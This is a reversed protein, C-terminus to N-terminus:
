CLNRTRSYTGIARTRENSTPTPAANRETEPTFLAYATVNDDFISPNEKLCATVFADLTHAVSTGKGVAAVPWAFFAEFDSIEPVFLGDSAVVLTDGPRREASSEQPEGYPSPGLSALLLSPNDPAHQPHLLTEWTGNARRIEAGGDGIHCLAYEKATALLVILTCRFDNAGFHHTGVEAVLRRGAAQAHRVMEPLSSSIKAAQHLLGIAAGFVAVFSADRGAYHGGCGDAIIAAEIRGLHPHTFDFAIGYDQNEPNHGAVSILGACSSATPEVKPFSRSLSRTLSEPPMWSPRVMGLASYFGMQDYNITAANSDDARPPAERRRIGAVALVFGTAAPLGMGDTALGAEDSDPGSATEEPAAMAEAKTAEASREPATAAGPISETMTAEEQHFAAGDDALPEARAIGLSAALFLGALLLVIWCRRSSEGVSTEIRRWEERHDEAAKSGFGLLAVSSPLGEALAASMTPPPSPELRQAQPWCLESIPITRLPM